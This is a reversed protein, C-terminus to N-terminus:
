RAEAIATETFLTIEGELIQIVDIFGHTHQDKEVLAVGTYNSTGSIWEHHIQSEPAIIKKFKCFRSAHRCRIRARRGRLGTSNYHRMAEYHKGGKLYNRLHNANQERVKIPHSHKWALIKELRNKYNEEGYKEIIKGKKVRKNWGYPM